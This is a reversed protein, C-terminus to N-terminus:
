SGVPVFILPLLPFIASPVAPAAPPLLPLIAVPFIPAAAFPLISSQVMPAYLSPHAMPRELPEIDVLQLPPLFARRRAWRRAM